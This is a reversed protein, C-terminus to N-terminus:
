SGARFSTAPDVVGLCRCKSALQHRSVTWAQYEFDRLFWCAVTSDHKVVAVQSARPVQLGLFQAKSGPVEVVVHQLLSRRWGPVLFVCIKPRLHVM